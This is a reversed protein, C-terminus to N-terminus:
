RRRQWTARRTEINRIVLQCKNHTAVMRKRFFFQRQFIICADIMNNHAERVIAKGIQIRHQRARIDCATNREGYRLKDCRKSGDACRVRHCCNKASKGLPKLALELKFQTVRWELWKM